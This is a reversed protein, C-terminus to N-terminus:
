EDTGAFNISIGTCWSAQERTVLIDAPPSTLTVNQVGGAHLAALIGSRAVDRGLRHCSAIYDDLRARATALVLGSDPGSFTKITADVIYEVIAASQVTVLDTMPRRTESSLYNEVTSILDLPAEGSGTRSLICVLVQGPAPSTASADLVDPDASLAHFIYAGEPGAVSYGEPALVLRNRLDADSELVAPIGLLDDAPTIIQRTVRLRAAINDLDAGTAYAPMVARAGDNVRQRVLQALYAFTQLLKTAPDSDRNEFTPVLQQLRATATSLLTEYDLPEIIDPAPLRSLDVATFTTEAMAAMDRCAM